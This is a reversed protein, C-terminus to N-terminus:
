YVIRGLEKNLDRGASEWHCAAANALHNHYHQWYGLMTEENLEPRMNELADTEANATMFKDIAHLDAHLKSATEKMAGYHNMAHNLQQSTCDTEILQWVNTTGPLSQLWKDLQKQTMKRM